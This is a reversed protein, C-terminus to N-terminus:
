DKIASDNLFQMIIQTTRTRASLRDNESMNNYQAVVIDNVVDLPIDPFKENRIRALVRQLEDLNNRKL